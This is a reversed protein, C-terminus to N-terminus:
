VWTYGTPIDSIKLGEILLSFFGLEKYTKGKFPKFYTNKCYNSIVRENLICSESVMLTSNFKIAKALRGSSSSYFKGLPTEAFLLYKCGRQGYLEPIIGDYCVKVEKTICHTMVPYSFPNEKVKNNIRGKILGTKDEHVLLRYQELTIPNYYFETHKHKPKTLRVDKKRIYRQNDFKDPYIFCFIDDVTDFVRIKDKISTSQAKRVENRVSEYLKSLEIIATDNKVISNMMRNFAFLFKVHRCALVLLYHAIFHNRTILPTIYEQVASYEKFVAQPLIHHREMSISRDYKVKCELCFTIYNSLASFSIIELNANKFINLIQEFIEKNKETLQPIEILSSM